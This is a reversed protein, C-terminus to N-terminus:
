GDGRQRAILSQSSFPREKALTVSGCRRAGKRETPRRTSSSREGQALTPDGAGEQCLAPPRRASAHGGGRSSPTRGPRLKEVRGYRSAAAARCSSGLHRPEESNPARPTSSTPMGFRTPPVTAPRPRVQAELIMKAYEKSQIDAFFLSDRWRIRVPRRRFFAGKLTAIMSLESASPEYVPVFFPDPNGELEVVVFRM